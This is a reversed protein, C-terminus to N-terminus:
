KKNTDNAAAGEVETNRLSITGKVLIYLDSYNCLNTRIMSTKFKTNNSSNTNNYAAQSEDNKKLGIKQKLNLQNIQHM